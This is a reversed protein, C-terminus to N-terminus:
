SKIPLVNLSSFYCCEGLQSRDAFNGYQLAQMSELDHVRYPWIAYQKTQYGIESDLNSLFSLLLNSTIDGRLHKGDVINGYQLM